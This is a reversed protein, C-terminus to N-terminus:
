NFDMFILNLKIGRNPGKGVPKIIDLRVDDSGVSIGMSERGTYGQYKEILDEDITSETFFWTNAREYFVSFRSFIIEASASLFHTNSFEKWYYGRLSGIGGVHFLHQNGYNEGILGGYRSTFHFGLDYTFPIYTDVTVADREYDFESKNQSRTRKWDLYFTPSNDHMWHYPRGLSVQYSISIDRGKDVDWGDRFEKDGGFMSWSVVTNMPSQKEERYTAGFTINFPLHFYFGAEFGKQYYWDLFDEHILFAAISNEHDTIRWTDDTAARSYAEAFLQIHKDVLFQELGLTGYYQNRNFARGAGGYLFTGPLFDSEIHLNLQLYFGEQRNYRLWGDEQYANSRFFSEQISTRSYEEVDEVEEDNEDRSFSWKNENIEFIEGNVIAETSQSIEGGLATLSGNVVATPLIYVDGGIITIEGNVVGAVTLDGGIIKLNKNVIEGEPIDYDSLIKVVNDSFVGNNITVTHQTFVAQVFLSLMLLHSLRVSNM